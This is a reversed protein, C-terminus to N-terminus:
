EAFIPVDCRSEKAKYLAQDALRMLQTQEAAHDPYLAVGIGIAMQIKIGKFDLPKQFAKLIRLAVVEAEKRSSLNPLIVAMEDGGLRAVTDIKRVAAKIRKGMEQIVADGAAHGYTDNIQKFKNGDLMMVAARKQNRDAQKIAMDLRDYFIRRNPLGSLQDYFAM